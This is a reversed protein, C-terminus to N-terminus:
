IKPSLAGNKIKEYSEEMGLDKVIKLVIQDIDGELFVFNGRGTGLSNEKNILVVPIKNSITKALVAFPFVKLSTGMIIVLDAKELLESKISFDQPLAEGFFVIDPKILGGCFKQSCQYKIDKNICDTLVKMDYEKGCEICHCHRFNGHAQCMKELPLGALLELSDINQTFIHLLTGQDFIIKQFFHSTTPKVDASLFDKSLTYFPTPDNKFYSIDFIAEPFPLNYKQLKSYLGTGPTRFDPIGASVSIGAGTLFVVNKFKQTKIGEIFTQYSFTSDSVNLNSFKQELAENKQEEDNSGRFFNSIKRSINGM